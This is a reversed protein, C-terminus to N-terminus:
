EEISVTFNKCLFSITDNEVEKVSYRVGEWQRDKISYIELQSFYIPCREPPTIQLNVVGKFKLMLKKKNNSNSLKM